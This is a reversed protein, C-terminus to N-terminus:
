RLRDAIIKKFETIGSTVGYNYEEPNTNSSSKEETVIETLIKQFIDIPLIGPKGGAFYNKPSFKLLRRIESEPIRNLSEAFELDPKSELTTRSMFSVFLYNM